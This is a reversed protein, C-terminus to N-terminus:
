QVPDEEDIIGDHRDLELSSDHLPRELRAPELFQHCYVVCMVSETPMDQLLATRFSTSPIWLHFLGRIGVITGKEAAHPRM